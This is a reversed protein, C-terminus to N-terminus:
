AKVQVDRLDSLRVAGTSRGYRITILDGDQQAPDQWLTVTSGAKVTFGLQKAGIAYTRTLTATHTWNTNMDRTHM